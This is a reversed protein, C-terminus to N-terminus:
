GNSRGDVEARGRRLDHPRRRFGQDFAAASEFSAALEAEPADLGLVTIGRTNADHAEIAAIANAWVARSRTPKLQQDALRRHVEFLKGRGGAPGRGPEGYLDVSSRGITILDLTKTM